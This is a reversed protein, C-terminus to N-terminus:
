EEVGRSCGERTRVSNCYHTKFINNYMMLHSLPTRMIDFCIGMYDFERILGLLEKINKLSSFSYEGQRRDRIHSLLTSENNEVRCGRRRAVKLADNTTVFGSDNKVLSPLDIFTKLSEGRCAFDSIVRREGEEFSAPNEMAYKPYYMVSGDAYESFEIPSQEDIETLLILDCGIMLKRLIMLFSMFGEASNSLPCSDIVIGKYEGERALAIMEECLKTMDGGRSYREPTRDFIRILPIKREDLAMKVETSFDETKRVGREDAVGGAYTIYTLYPMARKLIKRDCGKYFYGNAVAMGGRPEDYKLAIKEGPKLENELWPNLTFIDRKSIGFRLSIRDVTDGVQTTYERTPILILLEEGEAPEGADIENIMRIIWESVGHSEAIDGIKEGKKVTHIQM